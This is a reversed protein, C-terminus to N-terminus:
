WVTVPEPKLVTHLYFFVYREGVQLDGLGNPRWMEHDSCAVGVVGTASLGKRKKLNALHM